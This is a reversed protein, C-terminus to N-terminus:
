VSVSSFSFTSKPSSISSRCIAKRARGGGRGKGRIWAHGPLSSLGHMGTGPPLLCAEVTHMPAQLARGLRAKQLTCARPQGRLPHQPRLRAHADMGAAGSAVEHLAARALSVV